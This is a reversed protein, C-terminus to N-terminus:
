NNDTGFATGGLIAQFSSPTQKPKEPQVDLGSLKPSAPMNLGSLTPPTVLQPAPAPSVPMTPESMSVTPPTAITQPAVPEQMVPSAVPQNIATQPTPRTVPQEAVPKSVEVEIPAPQVVPQAVNVEPQVVSVEPQAVSAEPSVIAEAEAYRGEKIMTLMNEISEIEKEKATSVASIEADLSDVSLKKGYDTEYKQLASNLQQQLTERKGINVQRENNIRKSEANAIAIRQNLDAINSM